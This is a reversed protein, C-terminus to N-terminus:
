NTAELQTQVFAHVKKGPISGKIKRMLIGTIQNTKYQILKSEAVQILKAKSKQMKEFESLAESFETKLEEDSINKIKLDDLIDDITKQPNKAKQETIKPVQAFDFRGEQAATLINIMDIKALSDIEVKNRRLSILTSELFTFARKPNIRYTNVMEEFIELKEHRILQEVQKFSFGYNEKYFAEIDWPKRGITSKLSHIEEMDMDIMPTDTDPYLRGKGHIVRLFESNGDLTARRTEQPVGDLAMKSREIVKKMAHICWKQSAVALFYADDDGLNLATRIESDKEKTIREFFYNSDAGERKYRLAGKNIEHSLFMRDLQVGTILTVKELIDLGFDKGPQIEENYISAFKPLRIGMVVCDTPIHNFKESLDTYTHELAEKVLGREKLTNAIKILMDQRLVEHCCWKRFLNLNQVGKLEVRDGGAISINVDQRAAGIGRKGIGSIRLTLGILRATKELEKPTDVDRHDTIVEVLPVGLRDLSYHVTRGQNETKIRRASDEEVTINSIRIKKGDLMLYGDRGVITTRQFGTTISGDLYQKRAFIIEDVLASMDFWHALKYGQRIASLDPWHPPMEDQEYICCNHEWANYICRYGKEYEILMGPDFDGMEGLVPRFYREFRYDPARNSKVLDPPCFCFLKRNDPSIIQHHVELGAHFGLKKYDVEKPDLM